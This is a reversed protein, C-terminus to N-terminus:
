KPEEPFFFLSKQLRSTHEPAQKYQMNNYKSGVDHQVKTVIDKLEVHTADSCLMRCLESVYWSGHDLDRWAVKGPPTAYGFFFDAEDPIEIPNDSDCDIRVATDKGKGRCAQIFFLKPKRALSLCNSASLKGTLSALEILKSDTGYIQGEKGHTLLCCVFSDYAGHDKRKMQDFISIIEESTKDRYVEVIYGLYRFTLVLNEEDIDTGERDNQREFAENNIILCIGHPFNKMDYEGYPMKKEGKTPVIEGFTLRTSRANRGQKFPHYTEHPKKDGDGAVRVKLDSPMMSQGIIDDIGSDVPRMSQSPFDSFYSEHEDYEM